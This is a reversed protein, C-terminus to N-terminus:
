RLPRSISYSTVSVIKVCGDSGRVSPYIV